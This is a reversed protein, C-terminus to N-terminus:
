VVIISTGYREFRSFGASCVTNLLESALGESGRWDGGSDGRM